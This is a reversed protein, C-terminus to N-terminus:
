YLNMTNAGTIVPGVMNCNVIGIVALMNERCEGVRGFGCSSLIIGMMALLLAFSVKNKMNKEKGGQATIAFLIKNWALVETVM